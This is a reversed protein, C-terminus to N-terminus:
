FPMGARFADPSHPLQRATVEVGLRSLRELASLEEETVYLHPTLERTNPRASLNAVNVRELTGSQKLITLADVPSALLLLTRAEVPGAALRLAAQATTLIECGLGPPVILRLMIKRLENAAAEDNAVLIQEIQWYRMWFLVVQGHILRDDILPYVGM